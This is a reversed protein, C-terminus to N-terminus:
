RTPAPGTSSGMVLDVEWLEQAVTQGPDAVLGILLEASRRGAQRVSSRTATFFPEAGSNRLYSIDDDHTVISLDRGVTLGRAEVARRVGVASVMSSALIATPPRPMDLLRMATDHGYAETMQGTWMLEPDPTIGRAQLADRYGDRRRIAFDMTELGNLLAIRSHGLDLLLDTARRFASRNNIDLWSYPGDFDTVRGHVLHPIGIDRLLHLRPDNPQPTHVILGDVQGRAKITRYAQLHQADDVISIVMEYGQSAYVEGAGAIFDTFVPNLMEHQTSVAIVHGIAMSRGTALAQARTNPFYNHDRAAQEVRRRTAESVEPYGNLARSITTQSLGLIESLEKLNM